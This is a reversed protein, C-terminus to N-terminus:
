TQDEPTQTPAQLAALVSRVEQLRREYDRALELLLLVIAQRLEPSV